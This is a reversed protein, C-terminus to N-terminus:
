CFVLLCKVLSVSVNSLPLPSWHRLVCISNEAIPMNLNRSKMYKVGYWLIDTHPDENQSPGAFCNVWGIGISILLGPRLDTSSYLSSLLSLKGCWSTCYDIISIRLKGCIVVHIALQFVVMLLLFQSLHFSGISHLFPRITWESGPEQRVTPLQPEAPTQLRGQGFTSCDGPGPSRDVGWPQVDRIRRQWRRRAARM